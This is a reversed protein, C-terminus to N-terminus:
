RATEVWRDIVATLVDLPLSGHALVADHFGPLDFATGLRREAEARLRQIHLRGVMYSLAQGPNVTYRDTESEVEVAPMLTNASLYEIVRQRSWGKAHIGTDVVLRAARISDASLMGLRAVPDSYLGIEDALREAYLGWGESYANFFLLRRVLPSETIEQALSFQFHHGPTAEHFATSEASFREREDARHTNVFYTGPRSGDLAPPLYYAAPAGPADAAPVAEVVCAAAPRRGFCRPAAAEGRAVTARALDLLSDADAFFMGPDTTLRRWVEAVDRTGYAQAGISAYEDALGAVVELGLEHLEDATTDITTHIAIFDAYMAEGGPMWCLGIHEDDRGHPVVRAAVDDRYAGLAPRVVDSLLRDRRAVFADADVGADPSPTPRTMPDAEGAALTRDVWAVLAEALRRVPTLGRGIGDTHRAAVVRLLQPLAALRALYGDVQAPGALGLMPLDSLLRPLPSAYDDAVCWAPTDAALEQRLSTAHRAVVSLTTAKDPDAVDGNLRSCREEIAALAADTRGEADPSHDPLRDDYGDVGFLSADVPSLDFFTAMLADAVADVTSM